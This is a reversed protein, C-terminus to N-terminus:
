FIRRMGICDEYRSRSEAAERCRKEGITVNNEYLEIGIFSRGLKIAVEGTTATGAFPDLVIGRRIAPLDSYSWGETVPKRPTYQRATDHRGSREQLDKDGEQTVQKYKGILREKRLGEDYEVWEVIRQRPGQVTVFEPCTMAVPREVLASPFVAHHDITTQGMPVSWVNSLCRGETSTHCRMLEAPLLPIDAVNHRPIRVASTDSWAQDPNLVFRYFPEYGNGNLRRTAPEIMCHGLTTGDLKITEKAWVVSDMRYFGAHRMALCFREPIDLLEAHKGRKDGINVWISAWPAHPISQFVKVLNDIYEEVSAERGLESPSEGYLRKRFYPPSSVTSDVTIGAQKFGRLIQLADGCHIQFSGLSVSQFTSCSTNIM